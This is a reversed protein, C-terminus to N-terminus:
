RKKSRYKSLERLKMISIGGAAVPAGVSVAVSPASKKMLSLLIKKKNLAEESDKGNAKVTSHLDKFSAPIKKMSEFSSTAKGKLSNIFAGDRVSKLFVRKDM